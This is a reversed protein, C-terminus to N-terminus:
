NRKDEVSKQPSATSTGVPPIDEVMEYEVWTKVLTGAFPIEVQMRGNRRNVKLIRANAGGFAQDTLHIMQGEQYVKTRGIEGGMSLLSQAFLNDDEQLIYDDEIKGLIRLVGIFRKFVLRPTELPQPAFVFIYGPLLDSRRDVMKGKEWTHQVQQPYLVTLGTQRAIEPALARCKQTVCFLCYAIM